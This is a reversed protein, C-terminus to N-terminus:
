EFESGCKPCYHMQLLDDTDSKMEPEHGCNDCRFFVGDSSVRKTKSRKSVSFLSCIEAHAGTINKEGIQIKHLIDTLGKM